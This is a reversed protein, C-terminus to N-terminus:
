WPVSTTTTVVANAHSGADVTTPEADHRRADVHHDVTFRASDCLAGGDEREESLETERILADGDLAVELDNWASQM